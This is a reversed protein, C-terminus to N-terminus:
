AVAFETLHRMEPPQFGLVIDERKVGADLFATAIGPETGDEEIWIKGNKIRVYVINANVRRHDHWGVRKLIFEEGSADEILVTEVDPKPVKRLLVEVQELSQRVVETYTAVAAM